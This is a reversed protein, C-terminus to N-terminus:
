PFGIRQVFCTHGPLRGIKFERGTNQFFTDVALRCGSWDYYDAIIMIGGVLLRPAVQELCWLVSDHWDVDVHAFAVPQRIRMVDQLSGKILSLRNEACHMGYRTLTSKVKSFLDQEYGYYLDGGIGVAKGTVIQRYRQQVGLGDIQTPPPIMGFMDYIKLERDKAKTEAIVVSSGGLGCGAEVFIGETVNAEVTKCCAALDLLRIKSLYTLRDQIVSTVTEIDRTSLAARSINWTCLNNRPQEDM